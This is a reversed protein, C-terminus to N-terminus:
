VKRWASLSLGLWALATAWQVTSVNLYFGHQMRFAGRDLVSQQEVDLLNDLEVHLWVLAALTALMTLWMGWRLRRRWRVPDSSLMDWALIPLAVAGALNLYNTVRRTIFGQELAGGLIDTGIPVVVAAYFTFGGQWFMLAAIVAFRRLLFLM